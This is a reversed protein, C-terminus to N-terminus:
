CDPTGVHHEYHDVYGHLPTWNNEYILWWKIAVHFDGCWGGYRGNPETGESLYDCPGNDVGAGQDGTEVWVEVQCEAYQHDVNRMSGYGVAEELTWTSYGGVSINGSEGWPFEEARVSIGFAVVVAATLACLRTFTRRM